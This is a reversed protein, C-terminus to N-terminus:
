ADPPPASPPASKLLEDVARGFEIFNPPKQFCRSNSLGQDEAWKEQHEVPMGSCVIVPKAAIGLERFSKMAAPGGGGPMHMDIVMLDPSVTLLLARLHTASYVVAVQHGRDQFFDRVVM